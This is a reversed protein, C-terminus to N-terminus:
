ITRVMIQLFFFLEDGIQLYTVSGLDDSILSFFRLVCAFDNKVDWKHYLAM